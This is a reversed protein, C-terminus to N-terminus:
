GIFRFKILLSNEFNVRENSPYFCGHWVPHLNGYNKHAGYKIEANQNQVWLRQIKLGRCEGSSM